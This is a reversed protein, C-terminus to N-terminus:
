GGTKTLEAESGALAAYLHPGQCELTMRGAELGEPSEDNFKGRNGGATKGPARYTCGLEETDASAMAFLLFTGRSGWIDARILKMRLKSEVVLENAKGLTKRNARKVPIVLGSTNLTGEAARPM